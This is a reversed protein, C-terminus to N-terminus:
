SQSEQQLGESTVCPPSWGTRTIVQRATVHSCAGPEPSCCQLKVRVLKWTSPEPVTTRVLFSYTYSDVPQGALPGSPIVRHREM